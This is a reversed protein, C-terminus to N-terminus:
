KGKQQEILAKAAEAETAVAPWVADKGDWIRRYNQKDPIMSSDGGDDKGDEGVSYLMFGGNPQLRYRLPKGDMCDSPLSSLYDPVLASLASPAHGTRLVCRQIAIAAVAMQQATQMSLTKRIMGDSM